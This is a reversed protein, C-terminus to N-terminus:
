KGIAMAANLTGRWASELSAVSEDIERAGGVDITLRDGGVTGIESFPVNNEAAIERIREVNSASASIVIRSPAEGFLAAKSEIADDLKITAGIAERRYSSFSSEALAVALGGDSTDHASSLLGEGIMQRCAKQVAIERDLDLDPLPGEVVGNVLRLYESGGIGDRSEGLLAIVDGESTFWQTAVRRPDDVIGVMGIVPTPYIGKGDTENYFSVNGGTVPTGFAICAESMGDVTESFAWM